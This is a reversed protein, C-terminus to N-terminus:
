EGYIQKIGKIDGDKLGGLNTRISGMLNEESSHGLGLCHGIEHLAYAYFVECDTTYKPSLIVHGAIETCPSLAYNPFGNGYTTVDSVFIKIDSESDEELEEFQINAVSSWDNFAIRIKEKACVPLEAFSQTPVDVELHNSVVNPLEQFSFSVTGGPIKPGQADQGIGAFNNGDGWKFGFLCYEGILDTCHLLMSNCEEFKDPDPSEGDTCSILFILISLHLIKKM